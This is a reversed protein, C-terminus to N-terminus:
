DIDVPIEEPPVLVVKGNRETSVPNGIRKHFRLADRVANRIINEVEKAYKASFDRPPEPKAGNEQTKTYGAM